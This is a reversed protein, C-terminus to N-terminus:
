DRNVRLVTQSEELRRREAMIQAFDKTRLVVRRPSKVRPKAAESTECEASRPTTGEPGFPHAHAASRGPSEGRSSPLPLPTLTGCTSSKIPTSPPSELGPVLVKEELGATDVGLTATPGASGPASAPRPVDEFPVLDERLSDEVLGYGEKNNLAAELMRCFEADEPESRSPGGEPIVLSQALAPQRASGTHEVLPALPRPLRKESVSRAKTNVGPREMEIRSVWPMSGNLPTLFSGGPASYSVPMQAWTRWAATPPESGHRRRDQSSASRSSSSRKGGSLMDSILAQAKELEFNRADATAARRVSWCVGPSEGTPSSVDSWFAQNLGPSARTSPTSAWSHHFGEKDVALPSGRPPKKGQRSGSRKPTRLRLEAPSPLQEPAPAAMLREPLQAQRDEMRMRCRELEQLIAEKSPPAVLDSGVMTTEDRNDRDDRDDRETPPRNLLSGTSSSRGVGKYCIQEVVGDRRSSSRRARDKFVAHLQRAPRPSPVAPSICIAEDPTADRPLTGCGFLCGWTRSRKRQRARGRSPWEGSHQRSLMSPPSWGEALALPTNGSGSQSKARRKFLRQLRRSTESPATWTLM